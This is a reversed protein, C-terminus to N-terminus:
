LPIHIYFHMQMGLSIMAYTCFYFSSLNDQLYTM